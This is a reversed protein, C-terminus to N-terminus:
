SSEQRGFFHGRDEDLGDLALTTKNRRRGVKQALQACDAVPVSNQQHRVLHLAAASARALPPGNSCEPTSGSITQMALPIALPMGSPMQMVRALTMSQAGPECAEVKPPLGTDIAAASAVISMM